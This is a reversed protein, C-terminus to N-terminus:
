YVEDKLAFYAIVINKYTISIYYNLLSLCILSLETHHIVESSPACFSYTIIIYHIIFSNNGSKHESATETLTFGCKNM